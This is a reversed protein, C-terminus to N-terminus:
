ISELLQKMQDHYVYAYEFAYITADKRIVAHVTKTKVAHNFYFNADGYNNVENMEGEDPLQAARERLTIYGQLAATTSPYNIEYVGGIFQQGDFLNWQHVFADGQDSFSIMQFILGYFVTEKLTPSKFGINSFSATSLSPEIMTLIDFYEEAIPETEENENMVELEVIEELPIYAMRNGQEAEEKLAIERAEVASEAVVVEGDPLMFLSTAGEVAEFIDEEDVGLYNHAVLDGITFIVTLSLLISFITFKQM